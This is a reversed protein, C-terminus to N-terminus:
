QLCTVRTLSLPKHFRHPFKPLLIWSQASKAGVAGFGQLPASTHIPSDLNSVKTEECVTTPANHSAAETENSQYRKRTRMCTNAHHTYMHTHTHTNKPARVYACAWACMHVYTLTETHGQTRLHTHARTHTSKLLPALIAHTHKHTHTHTHTHIHTHADSKRESLRERKRAKESKRERM